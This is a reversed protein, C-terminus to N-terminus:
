CGEPCSVGYIRPVQVAAMVSIWRGDRSVGSPREERVFATHLMSCAGRRGRLAKLFPCATFSPLIFCLGPYVSGARKMGEEYVIDRCRRSPDALSLPVFYVSVRLHRRARCAPVQRKRRCCIRSVERVAAHPSIVKRAVFMGCLISLVAALPRRGESPLIGCPRGPPFVGGRRGRSAAARGDRSTPSFIEGSFAKKKGGSRRTRPM